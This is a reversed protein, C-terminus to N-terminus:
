YFNKYEINKVTRRNHKASIFFFYIILGIAMFVASLIFVRNTLFTKATHLASLIANSEISSQTVLKTTAVIEGNYIVDVGGVVTGQSMPANLKDNHFYYRYELDNNVDINKPVLAFVEDKAICIAEAKDKGSTPTALEVPLTCIEDGKKIVQTYNYNEFAYSLLSNTYSYSYIVGDLKEAGMVICLYKSDDKQAYAITCYGGLDTSGAILGLANYNRYGEAYYTSILANRNFVKVSEEGDYPVYSFSPASSIKVYLENTCARKALILIDSLTSYMKKDDLGTPNTFKTNNLGWESAKINMLEVFADVSGSCVNALVLAADNGGGCIVGYILNELSVTMGSKLQINAGTVEELMDDTIYIYEDLRHALMECSVLGTMMKVASGPFLKKGNDKAYLTKGLNLNYLCVKTAHETNPIDSDEASVAFSACNSFLLIFFM